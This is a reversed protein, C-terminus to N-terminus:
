LKEVKRAAAQANSETDEVVIEIRRGLMGGAANVEDVALEVGWRM